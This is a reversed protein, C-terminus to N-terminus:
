LLCAYVGNLSTGDYDDFEILLHNLCISELHRLQGFQKFWSTCCIMKLKVTELRRLNTVAKWIQGSLELNPDEPELFDHETNLDLHRLFELSSACFLRLLVDPGPDFTESEYAISLSTLRFKGHILIKCFDDYLLSFEIHTLNRFSDFDEHSLKVDGQSRTISFSQLRPASDLPLLASSVVPDPSRFQFGLQRLNSAKALSGCYEGLNGLKLTELRPCLDVLAGLDFEMESTPSIHFDIRLETLSTFTALWDVSLHLGEPFWYFWVRQTYLPLEPIGMVIAFFTEVNSFRWSRKRSLCSVLNKDNLLKRIHRAQLRPKRKNLHIFNAIDFKDDHWFALENTITRFRRSVWRVGIITRVNTSKGSPSKILFSNNFAAVVFSLILHLVENPVRDIHCTPAPEM